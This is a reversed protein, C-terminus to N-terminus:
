SGEGAPMFGERKLEEVVFHEQLSVLEFRSVEDKFDYLAKLDRFYCELYFLGDSTCLCSNVNKSKMIWVRLSKNDKAGLILHARINYGIKRLDLMSFHKVIVERELQRLSGTLSHLSIGDERSIESLSKRSDSRLHKLLTLKDNDLEM